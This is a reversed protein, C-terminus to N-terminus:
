SQFIAHQKNRILSILVEITVCITIFIFFILMMKSYSYHDYLIGGLISGFMCGLSLLVEHIIMRSTRNISGSAGHFMSSLYVFPFLIGFSFFFLSLSIISTFDKAIFCSLGILFQLGFIYLKKYHWFTTKSLIFFVFCSVMGRIWLLIGVTSETYGIQEKAYLPFINSIAGLVVYGVFVGIWCYYRLFTSHDVFNNNRIYDRESDAARLGPVRNTIFWLNFAVLFLIMAGVYFPLTVSKEILFGSLITSIATGGSWSLNFVGMTRNLFKEEKGRTLWSEISPWIFSQFFGYMIIFLIVIFYNKTVVIILFSVIIGIIGFLILNRPKHNPTKTALLLCFFVYSIQLTSVAIGISSASVSYIERLYYVLALNIGSMVLQLFFSTIGLLVAQTKDTDLSMYVEKSHM